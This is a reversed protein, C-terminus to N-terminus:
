SRCGKLVTRWQGREERRELFGEKGKSWWQWRQEDSYRAGSASVLRPLTISPDGPPQLRAFGLSGDSLGGYRVVLQRGEACRYTIPAGLEVGPTRAPKSELQDLLTRTLALECRTTHIGYGTGQFGVSRAYACVARRERRFAGAQQRPDASTRHFGTLNERWLPLFTEGPADAAARAVAALAAELKTDLDRLAEIVCRTEAATSWAKAEACVPEAAQVAPPAAALPIGLLSPLLSRPPRM